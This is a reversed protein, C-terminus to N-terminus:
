EGSKKQIQSNKIGSAANKISTYTFKSTDFILFSKREPVPTLTPVLAHNWQALAKTYVEIWYEYYELYIPDYIRTKIKVSLIFNQKTLSDYCLQRYNFQVDAWHVVPEKTNWSNPRSEALIITERAGQDPDKNDFVVPQNPRPAELKPPAIKIADSKTSKLPPPTFPVGKTVDKKISILKNLSDNEKKNVYHATIEIFQEFNSKLSPILVLTQSGTDFTPVWDKSFVSKFSIRNFSTIIYNMNMEAGLPFSM